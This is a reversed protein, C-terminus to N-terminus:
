PGTPGTPGTPGAPVQRPLPSGTATASEGPAIAAQQARRALALTEPNLPDLELARQAARRLGARDLRLVGEVRALRIWGEANDPQRELALLLHRRLEETRGRREAISAAAFLPEVALPNLDAALEADAAADALEEESPESKGVAALASATRTQALAPLAASLVALVIALVGLAFGAARVGGEGPRVPGSAVARAPRAAVVGLAILMPLTAGPIDWDWDLFCHALWASPVALLAAAYGRGPPAGSERWAEARVRSVAAALLALLGGMALLMGVLGTEALFQLPVSHPQQVPLLRTRYLDHTVPFSGAGWGGAPKASWAGAAEQWWTWRNGSNASLVRNPDTLADGKKIDTFSRAASALQGSILANFTGLLVLAISGAALVRGIRRGRAPTFARRKELAILGRGALALLGLTVLFAILVNRAPGTRQDVPVGNTTLATSGIAFLLPVNVLIMAVWLAFLTRMRETTFVIFVTMGVVFALIGGRSYTLGLVLLLLYVGGLASVRRWPTRAPDAALRLTPFLAMVAFLALANWYGFPARLRTLNGAHDFLQPLTKGGLAYLAVPVAIIALGRALRERARPLSSGVALALVVCLAYALARNLSMWSRDPTVSWLITVGTWVAFAALLGVGTWALPSAAPRVGGGYLFAGAAVLATVLLALQLWSEQPLRTAGEAFAAYAAAALLAVLLAWPV